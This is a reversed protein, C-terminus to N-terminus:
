TQLSFPPLRPYTSLGASALRLLRALAVRPRVLALRAFPAALSAALPRLSSHVTIALFIRTSVLRTAPLVVQAPRVPRDRFLDLSNSRRIPISLDPRAM